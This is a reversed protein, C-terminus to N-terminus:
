YVLIRNYRRECVYIQGTSSDVAMGYSPHDLTEKGNELCKLFQGSTDFVSVHNNKDTVYVTNSNWCIGAPFLLQGPKDGMSGFSSVFRGNTSFLQIRHNGFDAVYLTGSNDCAVDRPNILQEKGSGFSGFMHSLSLDPQLVQIRHNGSDAVVVLGTPHITIGSPTDFQLSGNGKKGVLKAVKGEMTFM